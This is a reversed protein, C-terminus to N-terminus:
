CCSASSPSPSTSTTRAARAPRSCRPSRHVLLAGVELMIAFLTTFQDFFRFIIPRGVKAPLVNRGYEKLRRFAEDESLGRPSTSCASTSRARRSLSWVGRRRGDVQPQTPAHHRPRDSDRTQRIPYGRSEAGGCRMRVDLTDSRVTLPRHLRRTLCVLRTLRPSASATPEAKSPDAVVLVDIYDTERMIRAILPSGRLVEDLRSRKSQGMVIFTARNERAFELIVEAESDGSLEVVEGGLSARSSSSSTSSAHHAGCRRARRTCTCWGSAPGAPAQGASLGRRVLKKAVAGPRSASSSATRRPGPSSSRTSTWTSKCRSTSRRPPRACPSSACPSSTAGASSTASRAPSRTSTTSSAASAPPQAPRRDHPRRARGRRRPRAVSDPLTERVRVGTIQYVTDNLSEFHQVNVTSIVNIGAALIEEVSQWRKAHQPQRARQHAGARRGAGVRPAARDRGGHGDGRLDQRSVRAAQAPGARLGEVLEAIAERGHTEVFGIVIDEGRELAAIRRPWCPTPRASAPPTASSSRSTGASACRACALVGGATTPSPRGTM